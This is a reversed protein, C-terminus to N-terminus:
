AGPDDRRATEGSSDGFRDLGGCGEFEALRNMGNM